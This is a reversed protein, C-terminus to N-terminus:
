DGGSQDFYKQAIFASLGVLVGSSLVFQKNTNTYLVIDDIFQIGTPKTLIAPILYMLVVYVIVTQLWM